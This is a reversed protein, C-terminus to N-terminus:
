ENGQEGELDNLLKELDRVDVFLRSPLEIAELRGNAIWGYLSRKKLGSVLSLEPVTLFRRGGPTPIKTQEM